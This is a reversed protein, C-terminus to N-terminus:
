MGNKNTHNNKRGEREIEWYNRGREGNREKKGKAQFELLLLLLLLVFYWKIFTLAKCSWRGNSSSLSVNSLKANIYTDGQKYRNTKNRKKSSSSSCFSQELGHQHQKKKVHLQHSLSFFCCAACLNVWLKRYKMKHFRVLISLCSISFYFISLSAFPSLSLFLFSSDPRSNHKYSLYIFRRENVFYICKYQINSSNRSNNQWKIHIHTQATHLFAIAHEYWVFM